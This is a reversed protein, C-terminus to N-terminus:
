HVTEDKNEPEFGLALIDKLMQRIILVHQSEHAEATRFAKISEDQGMKESLEVLMQWSNQDALEAILIAELSQAVTTRPDCVVQFLGSSAVSAVDGGPTMASPDGGLDEIAKNVIFMHQLEEDRIRELSEISLGPVAQVKVKRILAEYLRVGGREFAMREGLKNLLLASNQGKLMDIGAKAVGKFTAPIPVSGIDHAGELYDLEIEPIEDSLVEQTEFGESKIMAKSLLPAMQIGTRNLGVQFEQEIM